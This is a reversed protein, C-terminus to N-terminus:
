WSAAALWRGALAGALCLVVTAVIYLLARALSASSGLAIAELAFASFTTFGGLVGTMWFLRASEPTAGARGALWVSCAGILVSGGVNALMTATPWAGPLVPLWRALGYRAIGGIASGFGVLLWGPIM